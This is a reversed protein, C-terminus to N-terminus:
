TRLGVSESVWCRRRRARSDSVPRPGYGSIGPGYRHLEEGLICEAALPLHRETLGIVHELVEVGGREFSISGKIIM